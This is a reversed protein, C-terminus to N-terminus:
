LIRKIVFNIESTLDLEARFSCTEIKKFIIRIKLDEDASWNILYLFMTRLASGSGLAYRFM